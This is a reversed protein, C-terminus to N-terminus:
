PQRGILPWPTRSRPSQNRHPAVSVPAARWPRSLVMALAPLYCGLLLSPWGAAISEVLPMSPDIRAAYAFAAGYSLVALAYGEWKSRCCAFLLLGAGVSVTHPVLALMGLLRGEPTRWRLWALLLVFGGPRLVPAVHNARELSRLWDLPWSPLLALSVGGLAVGGVIAWRSPWGTWLALGISPKAPWTLAAVWPLAVGALLLPEWSAGSAASMFGASLLAPGLAPRARAALGLALGGLGATVLHFVPFPLDALPAVLLIAPLPYYLPWVGRVTHYPNAGALLDGAARWWIISDPRDGPAGALLVAAAALAVLTGGIPLVWKRAKMRIEHLRLVEATPEATMRDTALTV